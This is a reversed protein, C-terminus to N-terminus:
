KRCIFSALPGVKNNQFHIILKGLVTQQFSQKKEWQSYKVAKYFTKQGYIYHNMEQSEINNQQDLNRDKHLDYVMKIVTYKLYTKFDTLIFKGIKNKKLFKKSKQSGYM